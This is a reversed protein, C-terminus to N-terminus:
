LVKIRSTSLCAWVLDIFFSPLGIDDITEKIFPWNLRDNAKELDIKIAMWHKKGRKLKMSHIVEQTIIINDMNHKHPVFNCQTPSVLHDM